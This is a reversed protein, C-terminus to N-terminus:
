WRLTIKRIGESACAYVKLADGELSFRVCGKDNQANEPNLSYEGGELSLTVFDPLRIKM